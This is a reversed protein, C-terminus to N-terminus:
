FFHSYGSKSELVLVPDVGEVFSIQLTKM